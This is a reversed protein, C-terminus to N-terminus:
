PWRHGCATITNIGTAAYLPCHGGVGRYLLAGGAATLGLGLLGGRTLGLLRYQAVLYTLVAACLTLDALPTATPSDWDGAPSSGM